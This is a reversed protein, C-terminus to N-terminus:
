RHKLFKNLAPVASPLDEMVLDAMSKAGKENFHTPDAQKNALKQSRAPGLKEMLKKSSAYLDIVPVKKEDAVDKMAEAYSSLPRNPPPQSETIMRHGDFTRRVMPTILVPTAGIARSEDIYRRLNDKYDTAADTSEPLDPAHSDNHGFQILVYDPTEELAMKWRGEQIFTKTSRGPKALNIVKVTGPKFYEGIYQGWGRDPRNAPYECVTSDGIVVIRLPSRAADAAPSDPAFWLM